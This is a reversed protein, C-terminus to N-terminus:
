PSRETSAAPTAARRPPAPKKPPPEIPEMPTATQARSNQSDRATILDQQVKRQEEANLPTGDRAPPMDHVAPYAPATQARQPAGEPLGGLSAPLDSFVSTCGSVATALLIATAVLRTARRPPLPSTQSNSMM